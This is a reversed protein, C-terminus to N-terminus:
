AQTLQSIGHALLRTRRNVTRIMSTMPTTQGTTSAYVRGSREGIIPAYTVRLVHAKARRPGEHPGRTSQTILGRKARVKPGQGM